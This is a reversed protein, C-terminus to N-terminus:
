RANSYKFPSSAVAYFIYNQPASIDASRIKFGNSVFDIGGHVDEAANSNPRLRNDVLNFSNRKNDYMAWQETAGSNKLLVLAPKFGCYIFNSDTSNAGTYSGVKSYGDVSNFCYAIVDQGSPAIDSGISFVSSTPDTNNWANTSSQAVTSELYVANGNGIPEAYVVWSTTVQSTCKSIIMEPKQSLGHGVTGSNGTWKVISMGATTNASVSSTVSGDTNSVATGGAKWNWGVYNKGSGNCESDSGVTFGTSDFSQLGTSRTRELDTSNSILRKQAGRISDYLSNSETATRDKYWVFDADVGTTIARSAADNGSWLTASFHVAPDAISPDPLNDTNLTKFTGDTPSFGSQGFDCTCAAKFLPVYADATLGTAVSTLGGGDVRVKLTNADLDLEFELVELSSASYTSETGALGNSAVGFDGSADATVKWAWKGSSLLFTASRDTTGTSKLNGESLTGSGADVSNLTAYNQTPSDTVQDSAVLNTVTFDNTNGSSDDGLASSDQFKLYFGNTGYSGAYKISQWQNTDENTEGFSSADLATGDIFNVEALYGDFYYGSYTSLNGITFVSTNNIEGDQNLAPWANVTLSIQEGNVYIKIRNSDTSQTTDWAVVINLWGAVDRYLADSQVYNGNTHDFWLSNNYFGFWQRVSSDASSFLLNQTGLNSRKVWGSWTWTKRNGASSPTRTLKASDNDEFRLSQNINYGTDGQGSAGALINNFIPM